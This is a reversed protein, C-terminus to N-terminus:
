VGNHVNFPTEEHKQGLFWQSVIWSCYLFLRPWYSTLLAGKRKRMKQEIQEQCKSRM